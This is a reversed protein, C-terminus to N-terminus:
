YYDIQNVFNATMDAFQLAPGLSQYFHACNAHGYDYGSAMLHNQILQDLAEQQQQQTQEAQQDSVPLISINTTDNSLLRETQTGDSCGPPALMIGSSQYAAPNDGSQQHETSEPQLQLQELPDYQSSHSPCEPCTCSGSTSPIDGLHGAHVLVQISDCIASISSINRQEENAAETEGLHDIPQPETPHCVLEEPQGEDSREQSHDSYESAELPKSAGLMLGNPRTDTLRYSNLSLDDPTESEYVRRSRRLYGLYHTTSTYKFVLKLAVVLFVLSTAYYAYSLNNNAMKLIRETEAGIQPSVMQIETLPNELQLQLRDLNLGSLGSNASNSASGPESPSVKGDVLLRTDHTVITNTAIDGSFNAPTVREFQSKIESKDANLAKSLKGLNSINTELPNQNTVSVSSSAGLNSTNLTEFRQQELRLLRYTAAITINDLLQRAEPELSPCNEAEITHLNQTAVFAQSNISM